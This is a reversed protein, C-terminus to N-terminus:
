GHKEKLGIAQIVFTDEDPINTRIRIGHRMAYMSAASQLSRVRLDQDFDVGRKLQWKCGNMYDAWPYKHNGSRFEFNTVTEAM